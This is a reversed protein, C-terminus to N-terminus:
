EEKIKEILVFSVAFEKEHSISVFVSNRGCKEELVKKAAGSVNMEPKGDQNKEIWVDKLSFGFIGTGLAKFFAEKAAFRGAYFESKRSVSANESIRENEHFFREIMRENEAWKEFRSIKAIDCGIGFVM